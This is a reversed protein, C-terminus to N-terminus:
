TPRARAPCRHECVAFKPSYKYKYITYKLAKDFCCFWCAM